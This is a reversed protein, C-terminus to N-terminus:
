FGEKNKSYVEANHDCDKWGSNVAITIPSQSSNFLFFLKLM